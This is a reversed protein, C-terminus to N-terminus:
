PVGTKMGEPGAAFKIGIGFRGYCCFFSVIRCYVVSIAVPNLRIERVEFTEDNMGGDTVRVSLSSVFM